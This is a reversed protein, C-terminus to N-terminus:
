TLFFLGADLGFRLYEELLLALQRRRAPEHLRQFAGIESGDEAGTSIERATDLRLQGYGPQGWRTSTFRPVLAAHMRASQLVELEVVNGRLDDSLLDAASALGRERALIELAEQVSRAVALDPQCRFRRPTASGEPVYCYRVCGVNRREVRVPETFLTESAELERLSLRGFITSRTLTMAPGTEEGAFASGVASGIEVLLEGASTPDAAASVLLIAFGDAGPLVILRDPADEPGLLAVLAGSAGAGARLGAQLAAAIQALADGAPTFPADFATLLGAESRLRVGVVPAPSTLPVVSPLIGSIVGDVNRAGAGTTLRLDAATDPASAGGHRSVTVRGPKGPLLALRHGRAPPPAFPDDQALAVRAFLFAASAHAARVARELSDRAEAPTFPIFPLEAPYPGEEGIKVDVALRGGLQPFVSLDGSLLGDAPEASGQDLRFRFVSSRDTPPSTEAPEFRIEGGTFGPVEIHLRDARVKVTANSAVGQLASQLSEAADELDKPYESLGVEVPGQPGLRIRLRPATLLPQVRGTLFAGAAVLSQAELKLKEVDSERGQSREIAVQDSPRGATILLRGGVSQVMALRYTEASHATRLARELLSRLHALNTPLSDLVVTHFGQTGLAVDIRLRTASLGTFASLDGSLIGDLASWGVPTPPAPPTPPVTPAPPRALPLASPIGDTLTVPLGTRAGPQVVLQDGLRRVRALSFTPEPGATRLARELAARYGELDNAEPLDALYATHTLTGFQASFRPGASLRPFTYLDGSLIGTAPTALGPTLRLASMPATGGGSLDALVVQDSATGATVLLRGGLVEVTTGTFTSSLNAARIAEQLLDCAEKLKTPAQRLTAKAPGITGLTVQFSPAVKLQPPDELEGSLLGEATTSADAALRLLAALDYSAGPAPTFSVKDLPRGAAVALQGGMFFVGSQAFTPRAAEPVTSAALRLASQLTQALIALNDTVQDLTVQASDNGLKVILSLAPPTTGTGSLLGDISQSLSDTLRLMTAMNPASASDQFRISDAPDGPTVFLRNGLVEVTANVFSPGTGAGRIATQLADQASALDTPLSAFSGTGSIAGITVEISAAASGTPFSPFSSLDGSLLGQLRRSGAAAALGLQTALSSGVSSEIAVASGQVGSAVLLRNGLLLVEAGTYEPEPFSRLARGLMEAARDLTGPLGGLPVTRAALAGITVQVTELLQPPFPILSGSVLLAASQAPPALLGTDIVTNPDSSAKKFEIREGPQGSVVLLRGHRDGNVLLGLSLVRAQGFSRAFAPPVKVAGRIANELLTRLTALDHPFGSFGIEHAESGMGFTVALVPLPFKPFAGIAGSLLGHIERAPPVLLKLEEATKDGTTNSLEVTAGGARVLLREVRTRDGPIKSPPDLPDILLLVDAAPVKAALATQLAERAVGSDQPVRGLTATLWPGSGVKVQLQPKTWERVAVPGSALVGYVNEAPPVALALDRVTDPDGATGAIVPAQTFPAGGPLIVLLRDDLVEVRTGDFADELAEQLTSAAEKLTGTSKVLPVIKETGGFTVELEPQPFTPFQDLLGSFVGQVFTGEPATISPSPTLGLAESVNPSASLGSISVVTGAVGPRVLLRNTGADGPLVEVTAARSAIMGGATRIAAELSTKARDVDSWPALTVRHPGDAGLTVEVQPERAAPFPSLSGSLLGGLRVAPPQTLRLDAAPGDGFTLSDGPLGSRALLYQSGLRLVTANRFSPHDSAARLGEQLLARAEELSAPANRLRVAVPGSEGLTVTMKQSDALPLRGEADVPLSGSVLASAPSAGGGGAAADLFSDELELAAVGEPLRLTGVISSVIRVSLEFPDGGALFALSARESRPVLTSHAIELRLAEGTALSLDLGGDLLLGNIVLTGPDGAGAAGDIRPRGSPRLVPRKGDEAELVLRVGRPVTIQFDEEYLDNDTFRIVADPSGAATWLDLASPLDPVTGSRAIEVELDGTAPVTLTARRDYPGGGMEAAFGYAYDVRVPLAPPEAFLLRGREPDIAVGGAPIDLGGAGWDGLDRAVVESQAVEVGGVLVRIAKGPGYFGSEPQRLDRDLAARSIPVPLDTEAAQRVTGAPRALRNFLPVDGGLPDFRFGAGGTGEAESAPSGELAFAELRWLHLALNPLNFRGRLSRIRRVDVTRFVSPPAFPSEDEALAAAGRRGDFTSGQGPRVHRVNQTWALREFMEVVRAPWGVVDRAMRELVAATGKRQRDDLVRAVQTRPHAGAHPLEGLVRVGLLDGLYPVIWDECTEIFWNEYLGAIDDEIAELQSEAISLLARLSEGQERDRRRYLEPLRHYLHEGSSWTM